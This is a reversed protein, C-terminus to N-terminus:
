RSRWDRVTTGHEFDIEIKNIVMQANVAAIASLARDFQPWTRNRIKIQRHHTCESFQLQRHADVGHRVLNLIWDREVLIFLVTGIIAFVRIPEPAHEHLAIAHKLFEARTKTAFATRHMKEPAAKIEGHRTERAPGRRRM